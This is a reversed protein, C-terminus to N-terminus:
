KRAKAGTPKWGHEVARLLNIQRQAKAESDHTGKVAGTDLNYVVWKNGKKKIEYPM